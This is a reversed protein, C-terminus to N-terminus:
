TRAPYQFIRTQWESNGHAQPGDLPIFIGVRTAGRFRPGLGTPERKRPFSAPPTIRLPLSVLFRVRPKEASRPNRQRSLPAPIVIQALM